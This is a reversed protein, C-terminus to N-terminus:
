WGARKYSESAYEMVKAPDKMQNRFYAMVAGLTKPRGNLSSVHEDLVQKLLAVYAEPPPWTEIKNIDKFYVEATLGNALSGAIGGLYKVDADPLLEALYRKIAAVYDGRQTAEIEVPASPAVIVKTQNPKTHNPKPCEDRMAKANRSANGSTDNEMGGAIRTADSLGLEQQQESEKQERYKAWRRQAAKTNREKLGIIHGEHDKWDHLLLRDGERDIFGVEICAEVFKGKKGWWKAISELEATLHGTLDGDAPHYRLAYCWLRQLSSDAGRGCLAILKRTKPHDHFDPDLNLYPM